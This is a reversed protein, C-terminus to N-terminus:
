RLWLREWWRCARTQCVNRGIPRKTGLIIWFPGSAGGGAKNRRNTLLSLFYFCRGFGKLWTSARLAFDSQRLYILEKLGDGDVLLKFRSPTGWNV